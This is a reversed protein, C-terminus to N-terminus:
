SEEEEAEKAEAAQQKQLDVLRKMLEDAAQVQRKLAPAPASSKEEVARAPATIREAVAEARELIPHEGHAKKFEGLIGTTEESIHTVISKVIEDAEASRKGGLGDKLIAVLQNLGYMRGELYAEHVEHDTQM